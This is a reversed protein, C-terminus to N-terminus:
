RVVGLWRLALAVLVPGVVIGLLVCLGWVMGVLEDGSRGQGGKVGNPESM